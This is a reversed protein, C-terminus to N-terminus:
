GQSVPETLSTAGRGRGLGISVQVLSYPPLTIGLAGDRTARATDLPYSTPDLLWGPGGITRSKHPEVSQARLLVANAGRWHAQWGPLTMSIRRSAVPVCNAITMLIQSGETTVLLATDGEIESAASIKALESPRLLRQGQHRAYLRMVQGINILTANFPTVDVVGENVPQFYNTSVLGLTHARNAFMTLTTVARM